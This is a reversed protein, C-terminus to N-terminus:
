WGGGSSSTTIVSGGGSTINVIGDQIEIYSIAHIGDGNEATVNVSGGKIKVYGKIKEYAADNIVTGDDAVEVLELKGKNDSKIGDGHATVTINGGRIVVSDKGRIGDDAAKVVITGGNIDLDDKTAIADNCNGNVNLTGEGALILDCKSYFAACEDLDDPDYTEISYNTGDTFTNQTGKVTFIRVDKANKVQFPSSNLSTITVGNFVIQVIEKDSDSTEVLLRGDSLTGDVEFVGSATITAYSDYVTVDGPHAGDVTITSGNLHIYTVEAGERPDSNDVPKSSNTDSDDDNVDTDDNTDPDTDPNTPIGTCATTDWGSCNIKCVAIGDTYGSDILRCDKTGGDCVEGPDTVRNGCNESVVGTDTGTDSTSGSDTDAGSSGSDGDDGTDGGDGSSGGCSVILLAFLMLFLILLKKM